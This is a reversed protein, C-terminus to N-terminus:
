PTINFPSSTNPLITGTTVDTATITIGNAPAGYFVQFQGSGNVLAANNPDVGGGSDTVAVTDTVGPIPNWHADVALVTCTVIGGSVSLSNPTPTGTKGTTTNPANTEGPLLVQLQSFIHKVLVFYAANGPQLDNTNILQDFYAGSTFVPNNTADTWTINTSLAATSQLAYGGAPETWRVWYPNGPLVYQIARAYAANTKWIVTNPVGADAIFNDDFDSVGLGTVKFESAVIHDNQGAANNGQVGFYLAVNNAFLTMTDATADDQLSFNTTTGDPVTMTVNTNQNFTLTYTGLPTASRISAVGGGLGYINTGYIMSNNNPNNTKYRFTMQTGGSTTSEMDIFICNTDNYDPAVAADPNPVLFIQTQFQDNTAVPYNTITFSYSVPGAAGVWSYTQAVTELDQRNNLATSGGAFLNLGPAAAQFDPLLSPPPPPPPPVSASQVVLNDIWFTMNNTPYGEYSNQDFAVGWGMAANPTAANITLAMAIFVNSDNESMHAWGNTASGPITLFTVDHRNYNEIIGGSLSGFNGDTNTMTGPLVHIDWSINTILNIQIQSGGSHIGTGSFSIDFVNQDHSVTFPAYVYMSGSTADAAADVAADNTGQLNYGGLSQDQYVSYWYDWDPAPYQGTNAGNPFTNTYGTIVTQANGVCQMLMVGALITLLKSERHLRKMNNALKPKM